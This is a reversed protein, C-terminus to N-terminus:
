TNKLKRLINICKQLDQINSQLDNYINGDLKLEDIDHLYQQNRKVQKLKFLEIRLTEISYEM